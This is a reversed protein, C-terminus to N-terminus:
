EDVLSVKTAEFKSLSSYLQWLCQTYTKKHPCTKLQKSYIGLLLIGPDHPLTHKTKHSALCMKLAGCVMKCEWGPTFSLECANKKKGFLLILTYM